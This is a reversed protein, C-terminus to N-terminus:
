GEDHFPKGDKVTYIDERPDNLFSYSPSQSAVALWEGETIESDDAFLIIVRVRGNAKEPLPTDLLLHRTDDVVATTEIAHLVTEM